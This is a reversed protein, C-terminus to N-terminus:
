EQIIKITSLAQRSPRCRSAGNFSAKTKYLRNEFSVPKKTKCLTNQLTNPLLYYGHGM